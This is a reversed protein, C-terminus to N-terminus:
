AAPPDAWWARITPASSSENRASPTRSAAGEKLFEPYTVVDFEIVAQRGGLATEIEKRSSQRGRRGARPNTSCLATTHSIHIGITRAVALVHHLDAMRLRAWPAINLFLSHEVDRVADRTLEVRGAALNKKILVDLGPEQIPVEGCNLRKVRAAGAAV